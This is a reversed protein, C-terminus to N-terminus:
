KKTALEEAKAQCEKLAVDSTKKGLLVEQIKVQMFTSLEGYYPVIPRNVFYKYQEKAVKVVAPNSAVVAPDDYLSIWIPLANSCYKQQFQKSTLYKMYKLAEAPHKSGASIGLPQGGNCTGSVVKGEGPIIAIGVDAPALKSEKPDQAAAYMYTWNFAFAANGSEFTGKVDDELFETSKPNSLGSKISGAMFDLAKKNGESNIQPKGNKAVLGGGFITALPVYDCMLAEAQAWTWAIPYQAIGKEKIVKAQQLMESMTKPPASFGAKSLMSKNYFLYRCDNLWPLGYIKGKYMCSGLAGSFIDKKEAESLTVERLIKAQAFKATFPGDSLVVDYSGSQASTIIKQELEEYAVFTTQVKIKPNLKEFEATGSKTDEESYGAQKMFLANITVPGSAFALSGTILAVLLCLVLFVRITKM